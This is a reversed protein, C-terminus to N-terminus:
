APPQTSGQRLHRTRRDRREVRELERQVDVWRLARESARDEDGARSFLVFATAWMPVYAGFKAIFGALQQDLLPSISLLARQGSFSPYLPRRAFIWIFSLSTVALSSALLYGGKAPRGLQRPAPAVDLVPLRLVVGLVLTVVLMCASAAPTGAAWSITAPLLMVTGAVTVVVIAALPHELVRVVADLPAPRTAAALLAAPAALLLLPAAGLMLLLRQVVTASLSVHLALDGLPWGCAVVIVVLASALQLRQTRTAAFRRAAAGYAIASAGLCAWLAPHWTPPWISTV